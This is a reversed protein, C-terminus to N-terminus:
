GAVASWHAVMVDYPGAQKPMGAAADALASEPIVNRMTVSPDDGTLDTVDIQWGWDGLYTAALQASDGQRSGSLILLDPQQHWSDSWAATVAESEAGPAGILLHGHQEGDSPHVWTYALVLAGGVGSVTASSPGSAFDDTPMLRFTSTGTLPIPATM